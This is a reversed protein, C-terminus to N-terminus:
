SLKVVFTDGIIRTSGYYPYPPMEAFEPSASIEECEERSAFPISYGLYYQLFSEKSYFTPKTGDIGDLYKTFGLNKSYFVPEDWTGIVALKTGETFDPSQRIDSVLTVYFAYTNQYRLYMSLYASNAVYINILVIMSCLLMTGNLAVQRSFEALKGSVVTPTLGDALMLVLLYVCIFSYLVLTHISNPTTFLYMCNVALPLIGVLTSLLLVSTVGFRSRIMWLVLLVFTCLLLFLHVKRSISSPILGSAAARFDLIFCNYALKIKQPLTGFSFSISNAAYDGMHVHNLKLVLQILVWYIGLSIILFLIYKMGRLFVSTNDEGDLLQRILVLILLSAALSIYAQYISLSLVLCTVAVLRYSTSNYQLFWVSLVSLFFAVAYSSVTFMFAFTATLTPFTLVLGATLVQTWRCRIHLLSVMM